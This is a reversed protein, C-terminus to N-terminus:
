VRELERNLKEVYITLYSKEERSVKKHYKLEVARVIREVCKASEPYAKSITDFLTPDDRYEKDEYIRQILYKLHRVFRLYSVSDRDLKSEFHKEVIATVDRIFHAVIKVEEQCGFADKRNNVFHLAIFAAEDTLLEYAMSKEILKKAYLGIDFEEPYARSIEMTLQNTMDMHNGLRSILGDIHDSLTLHIIDTLQLKKEQVAYSIVKEALEVAKPNIEKVLRAYQNQVEDSLVFIKLDSTKPVSDGAKKHFGIGLKMVVVEEGNDDSAIVVNNNLIKVVKM